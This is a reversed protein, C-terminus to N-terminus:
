IHILSLCVGSATGVTIRGSDARADVATGSEVDIRGSTTTIAVTGAPGEVTVRGSVSGVVVSSKAPVRVTLRGAASTITTTDGAEDVRGDGDFTVDRRDEAIVRVRGSTTSIRVATVRAVTLM